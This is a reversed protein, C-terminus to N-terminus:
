RLERAKRLKPRNLNRRKEFALSLRLSDVRDRVNLLEHEEAGSTM